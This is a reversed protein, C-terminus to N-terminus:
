HISVPLSALMTKATATAELDRGAIRPRTGSSADVRGWDVSRRFLAGGSRGLRRWFAAEPPGSAYAWNFGIAVFVGQEVGGPNRRDRGPDACGGGWPLRRGRSGSRPYTRRTGSVQLGVIFNPNPGLTQVADRVFEGLAPAEGRRIGTGAWATHTLVLEVQFGAATCEAISRGSGGEASSLSANGSLLLPSYSRVDQRAYSESRRSPYSSPVEPATRGAPGVTGAGGGPLRRFDAAHSPRPCRGSGYGPLVSPRLSLATCLPVLRGAVPPSQATSPSFGYLGARRPSVGRDPFRPRRLHWAAVPLGVCCVFLMKWLYFTPDHCGSRSGAM